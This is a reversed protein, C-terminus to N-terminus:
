QFPGREFGSSPLGSELGHELEVTNEHLNLGPVYWLPLGFL